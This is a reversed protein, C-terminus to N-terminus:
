HQLYISLKVCPSAAHPGDAKADAGPLRRAAPRHGPGAVRRQGQASARLRRKSCVNHGVATTPREDQPTTTCLPTVMENVVFGIM